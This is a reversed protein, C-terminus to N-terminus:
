TISGRSLDPQYKTHLELYAAELLPCDLTFALNESLALSKRLTKRLIGGGKIHTHERISKPSQKPTLLTPKTTHFAM